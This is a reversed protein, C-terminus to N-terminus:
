KRAQGLVTSIKAVSLDNKIEKVQTEMISTKENSEKIQAKIAEIDSSYDKAKPKFACVLDFEIFAILAIIASYLPNESLLSFCSLVILLFFTSRVVKGYSLQEKISNFKSLIKQTIPVM